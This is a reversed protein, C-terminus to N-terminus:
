CRRLASRALCRVEECDAGDGWGGLVGRGTGRTSEGTRKGTVRGGVDLGRDRPLMQAARAQAQEDQECRALLDQRSIQLEDPTTSPLRSPPSPRLFFHLTIPDLLARLALGLGVFSPTLRRLQACSLCSSSVQRAADRLVSIGPLDEHTAAHRLEVFWLPLGLQAALSAM